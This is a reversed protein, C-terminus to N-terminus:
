ARKDMNIDNLVFVGYFSSRKLVKSSKYERKISFDDLFLLCPIHSDLVATIVIARM